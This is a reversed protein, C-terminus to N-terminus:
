RKQKFEDALRRAQRQLGIGAILAIIGVAIQSLDLGFLGSLMLLAGLIFLSVAILHLALSTPHRHNHPDGRWQWAPLHPLRKNM